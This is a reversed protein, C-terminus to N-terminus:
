LQNENENLAYKGFISRFSSVLMSPWLMATITMTATATITMLMGMVPLAGTAVLVAMFVSMGVFMRVLVGM